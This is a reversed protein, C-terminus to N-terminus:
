SSLDEGSLGVRYIRLGIKIGLSFLQAVASELCGFFLIYRWGGNAGAAALLGTSVWGAAQHYSRRRPFDLFSSPPVPTPSTTADQAAALALTALFFVLLATAVKGTCRDHWANM